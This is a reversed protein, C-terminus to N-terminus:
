PPSKELLAAPLSGNLHFVSRLDRTLEDAWLRANGPGTSPWPRDHTDTIKILHATNELALITSDSEYQFWVKRAGQVVCFRYPDRAGNDDAVLVFDSKKSLLSQGDFFSGASVGLFDLITPFIDIHSATLSTSGAPRYQHPFKLLVPVHTQERWLESAHVLKGHELFEEGHDGVACILANEYRGASKLRALVQGVLSDVYYLSNRYRNKIRSLQEGDVKFNFYNWETNYPTFPPKFDSPFYYDHHTSDYFVLFVRGGTRQDIMELLRRTIERDRGPRDLDGLGNFDVVSNAFEENQGFAIQNISHYSLDTAALAHIEYGMQRLLRMPVSGWLAPRNKVMAFHLPQNATLLSFWSIQTANGSAISDRFEVCDSRLRNLNPAVEATILDGRTSELVFLFIDPRDSPPIVVANLGAAIREPSRPERLRGLTVPKGGLSNFVDVAVPFLRHVEEWAKAKPNDRKWSWEWLLLIAVLGASAGLTQQLSFSLRDRGFHWAARVFVMGGFFMLLLAGGLKRFQEARVGTAELVVSAHQWGSEFVLRFATPLHIAAVKFMEFDLFSLGVGLALTGGWACRLPLNATREILGDAMSAVLVWLCASLAGAFWIWNKFWRAPGEIQDLFLSQIWILFLLAPWWFLFNCPIRWDLFQRGRRLWGGDARPSATMVPMRQPSDMRM